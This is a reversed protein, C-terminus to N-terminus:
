VPVFSNIVLRDIYDRMASATLVLQNDCVRNNFRATFTYQGARTFRYSNGAFPQGNVLFQPQGPLTLLSGTADFFYLEFSVQNHLADELFYVPKPMRNQAMVIQMRAVGPMHEEAQQCSLLCAALLGILLYIIPIGLRPM